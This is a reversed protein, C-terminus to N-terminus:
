SAGGQAAIGHVGRHLRVGIHAASQKTATHLHM